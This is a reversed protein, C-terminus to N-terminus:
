PALGVRRLLDGFRPDSRLRDFKPEVRLWPIWCSRVEYAKDLWAFAQEKEGLGTYLIAFLYPDVYKREAQERLNGLLRLAEAKNGSMAHVYGLETINMLPADGSGAGGKNLEAIAEKYLGKQGFGRAVNYSALGYNPDLDLTARSQEIAQDYRRAYYAACGVEGSILISLPDKELAQKVDIVAQDPQGVSDKYHLYCSFTDV